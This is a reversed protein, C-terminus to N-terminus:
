ELTQLAYEKVASIFPVVKLLLWNAYTLFTLISLGKPRIIKMRTILELSIIYFASLFKLVFFKIMVNNIFSLFSCLFLM